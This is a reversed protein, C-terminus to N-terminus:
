QLEHQELIRALRKVSVPYPTRLSQAFLSVRLEELMWRFADLTPDGAGRLDRRRRQWRQTLQAVEAMRRADQDPQNRLRELRVSIAELYRPVQSLHEFAVVQVFSPPLLGDLQAQVDAVVAPWAKAAGLARRVQTWGDAITKVLRLLEGALLTIRPRAAAVAREFSPRDAPPGEALAAREIAAAVIQDAIPAAKDQGPLGAIRLQLSSDRKLDRQFQRIPEALAIAFLRRVGARHERAATEPSDFLQLEVADGRDVLGPFGVLTGGGPAALEVLEPLEGVPWDVMRQGLVLGPMATSPSPGAAVLGSESAGERPPRGRLSGDAAVAQRKRPTAQPGQRGAGASVAEMPGAITPSLRALAAQFSGQVAVGLDAQLQSLQRSMGLQRGHEDVVRLNMRLHDPLAEPRFDGTLLTLGRRKRLAAILADVLSVTGGGRAGAPAVTAHEAVFGDIVEKLPQARGRARQPLTKLLAEVKTALLGPVLWEIRRADVQNVAYLPVTMTVGDEASGPEFRYDLAFSVGMMEIARPFREGDVGDAERRLLTERSLKLQDANGGKALWAEVQRSTTIDAPLRAAFWAFLTEEDVLLDPRRSRHELKEIEDVVRRNHRIFPPDGPWQSTVLGERILTDRAAVPDIADFAVRRGSYVPLGYLSGREAALVRGSRVDWRPDSWQRELLHAAATEIWRPDLRAVTRAYLRGTDVLEAAMVWRGGGGSRDGAQPAVQAAAGAGEGSSAGAAGAERRRALGSGPHILFKQQFTGLYQPGEIAKVGLNGLLGTLLARHLDRRLNGDLPAPSGASGEAPDEAGRWGAERALDRLQRHVDAWERLRRLSLFERGLRQTLARHSEQRAGRQAMQAQWYRWLALMAMFDSDPDAFRAHQQDAAQQATPPRERPDQTALASVIVLAPGLCGSDRAALLMRAMRPDVPFRALSRGIATLQQDRDIAGLENLLAFGDAIARSSPPDLFPFRDAADFGLSRMRLLVSALSSRLIEPETFRPRKRFGAEDFLRICLGDSVRGCRGARQDAAAQAIPEILLQEVKARLRYRKIRALGSDVVYRIRPVTISTEAVNTALVVRMGAGPDFVKQQDAASLRAYLMLVEAHRLRHARMERLLHAACDRIEREGPLFVLADGAGERWCVQLADAVLAPLDLDEDGAERGGPRRDGGSGGAARRDAPGAPATVAAGTPAGVTPSAAADGAAGTAAGGGAGGAGDRPGPDRAGSGRGTEDGGPPRYRIEVPYLRGSVEIVPAPTQDRGFHRAFRAADITASTIIVRLDDRRPGDLLQKVYGLLFDINLSREHAEDIILTDYRSLLRDSQSEALLIGDTMLKIRATPSFREGFRIRYGVDVGLPSGLEAAIRTAVTTAALRRPQTHGIWGGRGSRPDRQGRGAELCFKPLQTTKGSGTEGSIIVIPHARIAAVIEARRETVPLSAITAAIEPSPRALPREPSTSPPEAAASESSGSASPTPSPSSSPFASSLANAFPHLFARSGNISSVAPVVARCQKASDTTRRDASGSVSPSPESCRRLSPGQGCRRDAGSGSSRPRRAPCGSTDGSLLGHDCWRGAPMRLRRQLPLLIVMLLGFGCGPFSSKGDCSRCGVM